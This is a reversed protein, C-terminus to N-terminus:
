FRDKLDRFKKFEELSKAMLFPNIEKEKGITTPLTCGGKAVVDRALELEEEVRKNEGLSLVFELNSVTYEHAPYVKTDDPLKRFREMTEYASKYDGTFVRGVGASFLSDGCFLNGDVLYSVHDETHGNSKIIEIRMGMIEIYDGDGVVEDETCLNKVESPGYVVPNYKEKLIKVGGTHDGHKHTLLIAKLKLNEKEIKSVVEEAMSPDVVLLEGDKEITWIYNDDLAKLYGIM